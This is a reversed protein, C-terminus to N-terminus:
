SVSYNYNMSTQHDFASIGNSSVTFEVSSCSEDDFCSVLNNQVKMSVYSSTPYDYMSRDNGSVYGGRNYDFFSMYNSNLGSSSVNLYESKQFDFVSNYRRKNVITAAILAFCARKGSEM